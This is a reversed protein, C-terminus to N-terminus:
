PWSAHERRRLRGGATTVARFLLHKLGRLLIQPSLVVGLPVAFNLRRVMGHKLHAFSGM